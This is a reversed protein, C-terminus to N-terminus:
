NKIILPPYLSAERTNWKWKQSWCWIERCVLSTTEPSLPFPFPNYSISIICSWIFNGLAFNDLSSTGIQSATCFFLCEEMVGQVTHRGKLSVLVGVVVLFSKVRWQLVTINPFLFRMLLANILVPFCFM